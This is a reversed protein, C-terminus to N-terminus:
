PYPAYPRLAATPTSHNIYAGPIGDRRGIWEEFNPFDEFVTVDDGNQGERWDAIHELYDNEHENHIERLCVEEREM